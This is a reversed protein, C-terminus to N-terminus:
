TQTKGPGCADIIGSIKRRHLDKILVPMMGEYFHRVTNNQYMLNIVEVLAAGLLMGGLEGRTPLKSKKAM